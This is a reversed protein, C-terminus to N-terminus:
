PFAVDFSYTSPSGLQNGVSLQFITTTPPPAGGDPLPSQAAPATITLTGTLPSTNWGAFRYQRLCRTLPYGADPITHDCLGDISFVGSSPASETARVTEYVLNHGFAESTAGNISVAASGRLGNTTVAASIQDASLRNFNPDVWTFLLPLVTGPSITGPIAPQFALWPATAPRVGLFTVLGDTYVVHASRWITTNSDWCGNPGDWRNNKVPPLNPNACDTRLTDFYTEGPDWQQNDNNDVFPEALDVFWEGPDWKGNTVGNSSGSGDWFEEEGNASAIITVFGDRPNHTGFSPEGPFPPVDAPVQGGTFFTTSALNTAVDSNSTVPVTSGQETHWDVPIAFPIGNGTRDIITARCTTSQDNRPPTTSQLAGLSKRVCQVDFRGDYPRGVIVTYAGSVGRIGSTPVGPTDTGSVVAEVTVQGVGEGASLTTTAIGQSDTRGTPTVAAGAAAGIMPRFVLDVNAMPTMSANVVKFHVVTNSNRGTSQLTLINSGATPTDAWLVQNADLVTIPGYATADRSRATVQLSGPMADAVNITATAAGQTNTTATTTLTGPAMAFSGATATFTVGADPVVAGTATETLTATLLMRDGTAKVLVVKEFGLGLRYVGYTGGDFSGGGADPPGADPPGADPPGADPPGADPPGADPPGADPPGADPATVVVNVTGSTLKGKVVWEGTIVVPGTCSPDAAVACTFDATAVGDTLPVEVGATLDGASSSLRVTGTGPKGLGDTATATIVSKAGRNDITRPKATLTLDAPVEAPGCAAYLVVGASILAVRLVRPM